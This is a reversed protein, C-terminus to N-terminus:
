LSSAEVILQESIPVINAGSEVFRSMLKSGRTHLAPALVVLMSRLISVTV